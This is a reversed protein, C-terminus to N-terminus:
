GLSDEESGSGADFPLFHLIPSSPPGFRGSSVASDDEDTCRFRKFPVDVAGTGDTGVSLNAGEEGGGDTRKRGRKRECEERRWSGQFCNCVHCMEPSLCRWKGCLQRPNDPGLDIFCTNCRFEGTEPNIIDHQCYSRNCDGDNRNQDNDNSSEGQSDSMNSDATSTNSISTSPSNPAAPLQFFYASNINTCPNWMPATVKDWYHMLRCNACPDAFLEIEAPEQMAIPPDCYLSCRSQLRQATLYEVRGLFIQNRPLYRELNQRLGAAIQQTSPLTQGQSHDFCLVFCQKRPPATPLAILFRRYIQMTEMTLMLLNPALIVETELPIEVALGEIKEIEIDM